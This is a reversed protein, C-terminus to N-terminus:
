FGRTLQLDGDQIFEEIGRQGDDFLQIELCRWFVIVSLTLSVTTPILSHKNHYNICLEHLYM